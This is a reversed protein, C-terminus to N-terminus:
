AGGSRQLDLRMACRHTLGRAREGDLIGALRPSPPEDLAFGISAYFPANFPVNEFTTLTVSALGMGHAHDIARSMLARGVGRRQFPLAVALEWVHLHADVVVQCSVFGAIEGDVEAVWATGAEILPAHFAPEAVSDDAIWDHLQGRFAEAASREVAPLREADALVAPRVIVRGDGRASGGACGM